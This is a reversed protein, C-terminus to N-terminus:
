LAIRLTAMAGHAIVNCLSSRCSSVGAETLFVYAELSCRGEINLSWPNGLDVYTTAGDFLLTAVGAGCLSGPSVCCRCHM